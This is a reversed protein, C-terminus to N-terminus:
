NSQYCLESDLLPTSINNKLEKFANKIAIEINM